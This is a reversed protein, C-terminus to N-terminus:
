CPRVEKGCWFIVDGLGTCVGEDATKCIHDLFVKLKSNCTDDCASEINEWTACLNNDSSAFTCLEERMQEFLQRDAIEVYLVLGYRLKYLTLGDGLKYDKKRM